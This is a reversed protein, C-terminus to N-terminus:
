RCTPDDPPVIGAAANEPVSVTPLTTPAAVPASGAPATTPASTSAAAPTASTTTSDTPLANPDPADALRATGQFISLIAKARASTLDPLIVDASGIRAGKGEARYSRVQEPDLSRLMSSLGLLDNITLETDIRLNGPALAADILQKAVSPQRAGKNVAARILRRIFDQQRAIRGYDSTLDERFGTGDDYQFHRSRAYAVAADGDLTVCGAEAVYFGTEDDKSPYEFPVKVGGLINVLRKFACFSAEVYHDIHVGFNNEITAALRAAPKDGDFSSNLKGKNDVDAIKVWLDRPLSLIAAQKVEPDIRVVMITDPRNGAAPGFAGAYRSNPDVCGTPDSERSDTGVVLFNRAKPDVSPAESSAVTSSGGGGALDLETSRIDVREVAGLRNNAFWVLLAAIVCAVVLVCNLTILTRQPWTRRLTIRRRDSV